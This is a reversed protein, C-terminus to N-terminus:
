GDLLHMQELEAALEAVELRFAELEKQRKRLKNEGPPTLTSRSHPLENSTATRLREDFPLDAFRCLREIQRAPDRVLDSYGVSCWSGPPLGRLDAIACANATKWQFTAIEALPRNALARWGPPLLYSWPGEWGPLRRYSVYRGSQWGEIISAINALPERHIFIFRCDPFLARFFPVRLCNKPTKELLRIACPRDEEPLNTLRRGKNDRAARIFRATLTQAIAADLDEATLRNSDKGNAVPRLRPIAEIIRHSEGPISWLEGSRALTEFLLTTGSRPAGIVLLPSKM